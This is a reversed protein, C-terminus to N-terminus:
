QEKPFSKISGLEQMDQMKSVFWGLGFHSLAILELDAMDSFPKREEPLKEYQLIAERIAQGILLAGRPSTLLDRAVEALQEDKLDKWKDFSLQSQMPIPSKTSM